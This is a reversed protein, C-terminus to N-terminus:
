RYELSASLSLSLSLSLACVFPSVNRQKWARLRPQLSRYAYRHVLCSILVLGLSAFFGRLCRGPMANMCFGRLQIVQKRECTMWSSRMSGDRNSSTEGDHYSRWTEAFPGQREYNRRWTTIRCLHSATMLQSRLVLSILSRVSLITRPPSRDYFTVAKTGNRSHM